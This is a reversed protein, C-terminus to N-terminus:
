KAMIRGTSSEGASAKPSVSMRVPASVQSNQPTESYYIFFISFLLGKGRLEREEIVRKGKKKRRDVRRMSWLFVAEVSTMIGRM